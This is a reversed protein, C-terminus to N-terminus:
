EVPEKWHVILNGVAFADDTATDRHIQITNTGAALSAGTIADLWQQWGEGPPLDFGTLPDGNVLIEHGYQGVDYAQVEVYPDVVDDTPVEFELASSRNGAFEAWPLGRQESPGLQELVPLLAYNARHRADM